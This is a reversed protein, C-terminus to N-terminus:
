RKEVLQRLIEINIKDKSRPPDIGEKLELLKVATLVLLSAGRFPIAESFPKLNDYSLEPKIFIDLHLYRKKPHFFTFVVAQKEELMSKVFAPKGLMHPELPLRPELGVNELATILLSILSVSLNIDLTSREVGHLIAAIGGCVIFELGSARLDELVDGFFHQTDSHM